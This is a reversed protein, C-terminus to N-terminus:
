GPTWRMVLLAVDDGRDPRSMSELVHDALQEASLDRAPLSIGLLHSLGDELNRGRDEVLGDTFFVLATGPTLHREWLAPPSPPAGFPPGPQLPPFEGRDPEIILPAPHGASAIRVRGTDPHIRAFIATAIRDLDLQDWSEQVMRILQDPSQTQARM